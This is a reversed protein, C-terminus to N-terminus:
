HQRHQRLFCTSFVLAIECKNDEGKAEEICGSLKRKVEESMNFNNREGIQVLADLQIENDRMIHSTEMVCAIFCGFDTTFEDLNEKPIRRAQAIRELKQFDVDDLDNEQLCKDLENVPVNLIKAFVQMPTARASM